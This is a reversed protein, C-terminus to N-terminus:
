AAINGRFGGDAAKFRMTEQKFLGPPLEGLGLEAEALPLVTFDRHGGLQSPAFEHSGDIRRLLLFRELKVEGAGRQTHAFALKLDTVGSQAPLLLGLGRQAAGQLIFCACPLGEDM